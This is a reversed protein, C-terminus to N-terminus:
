RRGRKDRRTFHTIPITPARTTSDIMPAAVSEDFFVDVVDASDPSADLGVGEAGAGGAFDAGGGFGDIWRDTAFSAVVTYADDTTSRPFTV